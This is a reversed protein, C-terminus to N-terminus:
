SEKKYRKFGTGHCKPCPPIHGTKKFHLVQQCAICELTGPGTIEGSHYQQSKRAQENFQNWQVKTQDAVLNLWDFMKSELISAEFSLWDSFQSQTEQMYESIDQLDRKLYNAVKDAEEKSLEGLEIAKQQAIKLQEEINPIAKKEAHEITAHVRELMLDYAHILKDQIPTTM